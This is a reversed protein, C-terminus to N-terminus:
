GRQSKMMAILHWLVEYGLTTRLDLSAVKQYIESTMKLRLHM